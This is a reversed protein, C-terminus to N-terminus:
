SAATVTITASTAALCRQPAKRARIKREAVLVQYAGAFADQTLTVAYHGAGDTRQVSLPSTQGTNPDTYTLTVVRSGACGGLGSSVVGGFQTSAQHTLTVESNWARGKKKHHKKKATALAGGLGLVLVIVVLLAGARRLVAM